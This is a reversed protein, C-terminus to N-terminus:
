QNGNSIEKLGAPMGFGFPTGSSAFLESNAALTELADATREGTMLSVYEGYPVGAAEANRKNNAVRVVQFAQRKEEVALEAAIARITRQKEEDVAYLKRKASIVESPVQGIGNSFSLETVIVPSNELSKNVAIQVAKGINVVDTLTQEVSYGKLTQIIMEPIIRNVYTEAIAEQTILKERGGPALADNPVTSKVDRIVILRAEPTNKVQMQVAAEVNELDVNSLPLFVRSVTITTTHKGVDVRLFSDCAAGVGSCWNLRYAGPTWEKTQLGNSDVEYGIETSNVRVEDGVCGVFVVAVFVLVLLKLFKM